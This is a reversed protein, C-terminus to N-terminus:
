QFLWQFIKKQQKKRRKRVSRRRKGRKRVIAPEDAFPDFEDAEDLRRASRRKIPINRVWVESPVGDADTVVVSAEKWTWEAVKPGQRYPEIALVKKKRIDVISVYELREDRRGGSRKGSGQAVSGAMYRLLGIGRYKGKLRTWELIEPTEDTYMELDAQLGPFKANSAVWRGDELRSVVWGDVIDGYTARTAGGGQGVMATTPLEADDGALRLFAARADAFAPDLSLAQRYDQQAKEDEDIREHVRGRLFYALPSRENLKLAASVDALAEELAGQRLHLRTRILLSDFDTPNLELARDLDARARRYRKLTHLIAGRMAYAEASQPDLKIVQDLDALAQTRRKLEAYAEARALYLEATGRGANIVFSLDRVAEDFRDVELYALGRGQYAAHYGSNLLIARSYDRIAAFYHRQARHVTARGAFPVANLPLYRIATRYDELAGRYDKKFQRANGRNNYAAAYDPVLKIAQNFDRLAEKVRAMELYTNGRNNYALVFKPDTGIAANFDKIAEDFRKLRWKAVGRDNLIRARRQDTMNSDSELALDYFTVAKVFDGRMLAAGGQRINLLTRSAAEVPEALGLWSGLLMGAGALGGLVAAFLWGAGPGRGRALDRMRNFVM